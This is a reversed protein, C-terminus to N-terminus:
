VKWKKLQLLGRVAVALSVPVVTSFGAVFAIIKKPYLLIILFFVACILVLRLVYLAIGSRRAGQAGKALFRTLSRKLWAFGLASFLGGAFFFLGTPPDFLFGAALALIAALAAIELPVRRLIREEFASPEDPPPM